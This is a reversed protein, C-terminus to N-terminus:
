NVIRRDEAQFKVIRCMGMLRSWVASGFDKGLWGEFDVVNTSMIIKIKNRYLTEIFDYIVTKRNDTINVKGVDDLYVSDIVEPNDFVTTVWEDDIKKNWNYLCRQADRLMRQETLWIATKGTLLDNRFLSVAIHTKGVGQSGFFIYGCDFKIDNPIQIIKSPTGPITQGASIHEFNTTDCYRYREGCIKAIKDEVRMPLCKLCRQMRDDNQVWGADKCTSCKYEPDSITGSKILKKPDIESLRKM